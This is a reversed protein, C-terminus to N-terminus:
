YKINSIFHILFILIKVGDVSNTVHMITAHLLSEYNSALANILSLHREVVTEAMTPSCESLIILVQMDDFEFITDSIRIDKKILRCYAIFAEHYPTMDEDPLLNPFVVRILVGTLERKYRGARYLDEDLRILGYNYTHLGTEPDRLMMASADLQGNEETEDADDSSTPLAKDKFEFYYRKGDDLEKRSIDWFKENIEVSRGVPSFFDSVPKNLINERPVDLVEAMEESINLIIGASDTIVFKVPIKKVDNEIGSGAESAVHSSQNYIVVLAIAGCVSLVVGLWEFMRTGYSLAMPCLIIGQALAQLPILGGTLGNM